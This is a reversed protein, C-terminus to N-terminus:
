ALIMSTIRAESCFRVCKRRTPSRIPAQYVGSATATAAAPQNTLPCASRKRATMTIAVGHGRSMAMGTATIPPIESAARRPMTMLFGAISSCISVQRVMMKSM